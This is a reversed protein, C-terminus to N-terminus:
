TGSRRKKKKKGKEEKKKRQLNGNAESTFPENAFAEASIGMAAFCPKITVFGYPRRM